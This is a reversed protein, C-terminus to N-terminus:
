RELEIEHAYAEVTSTFNDFKVRYVEVSIQPNSELPRTDIWTIKGTRKMVIHRVHDGLKFTKDAM